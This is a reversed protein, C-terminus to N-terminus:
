SPLKGTLNITVTLPLNLAGNIIRSPAQYMSAATFPVSGWIGTTETGFSVGIHTNYYHGRAM